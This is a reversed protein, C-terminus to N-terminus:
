QCQLANLTSQAEDHLNQHLGAGRAVAEELVSLLGLGLEKAHARFIESNSLLIGLCKSSLCANHICDCNKIDEILHPLLTENFWEQGGRITVELSKVKVLVVFINVITTLAANRIQAHKQDIIRGNILSTITERLSLNSEVIIKAINECSSQFSTEPNTMCALNRISMLQVDRNPSLLQNSISELTSKLEDIGQPQYQGALCDPIAFAPNKMPMPSPKVGELVDLICRREKAFVMPCGKRRQIEVITSSRNARSSAGDADEERDDNAIFLNVHFTTYCGTICKAVANESDFTAFVSREQVLVDIKEAVVNIPLEFRVTNELPYWPEEPANDISVNWREGPKKLEKEPETKPKHGRHDARKLAGLNPRGLVPKPLSLSSPGGLTVAPPLLVM